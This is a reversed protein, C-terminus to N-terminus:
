HTASDSRTSFWDLWESYPLRALITRDTFVGGLFVLTCLTSVGGDLRKCMGDASDIFKMNPGRVILLTKGTPLAGIPPVVFLTVQTAAILLLAAVVGTAVLLPTRKM